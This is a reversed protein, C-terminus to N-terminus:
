IPIRELVIKRARNDFTINFRNFIGARGLLYPTNENPSVLCPISFEVEGLRLTIQTVSAMLGKGEIGEIRIKPVGELNLGIFEAASPSLMTVDAGTDLFFRFPTFGRPSRVLCELVPQILSGFQTSVERVPFEFRM